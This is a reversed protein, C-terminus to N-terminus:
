LKWGARYQRTLYDNAGANNTVRMNAGDYHLKTGARLAAVGLLMIENLHAAYSFPSSITDKGRIANVWNMEHSQHPIRPLLEKPAGFDNHKDAGLIRPKAGYTEQIMKGKSGIYLVGGTADLKEEGLEEPRPPMFGGDYWTMKVAPMGPRAAFEYYTTTASPYTAKNFATSITEITTPLGLKLGWVPHDVLHAGMDGLAGQGYDVWGRWNFPHYVPHYPTDPAVGLFLNWDLTKPVPYNAFMSAALRQNMSDANWRLTAPDVNYAGPRPVGQPWYGVPRNTWVHVERVEGIAGAMLYEQGRRAEDQSHGQNGMQTILKKDAAKKMLHRCEHVSWCLPKEVYVHKGIDMAASAIMAHMHDPTAVVIGDIDKQKDLMERYDQYKKIKPIQEEVFKKMRAPQPELAWKANAETQMKSPGFNRYPQPAANAGAGGARGAGGAPAAAPQAPRAVATQWGTLRNELLTLDCDCVAVINNMGMLAQTVSGGRGGIGVIAVNVIDSPAQMGRGLVHRPVITLGAGTLALTNVFQRRSIGSAEEDKKQM